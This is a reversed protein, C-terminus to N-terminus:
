SPSSAACSRAGATAGDRPPHALAFADRAGDDIDYAIAEIRDGEIAAATVMVGEAIAFPLGLGGNYDTHEGILNVRGPGFATVRTM